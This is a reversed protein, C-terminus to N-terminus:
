RTPRNSDPNGRQLAQKHAIELNTTADIITERMSTADKMQTERLDAAIQMATRHTEAEERHVQRLNEAVEQMHTRETVASEKAQVGFVHAQKEMSLQQVQKQAQALQTQLQVIMQKVKPDIEDPLDKTAQAIPNAAALRDAIDSAGPADSQRVVLDGAMEMLPPFAKAMEMMWAFSQERKTQYGPGTEMVVDYRGVRVDNLVKSIGDESKAENITTTQPQQDEGIIRIVRETDYYVPIWDLILCGLWRISRTLNDYFHFNSLDSQGQREAVMRGSTEGGEAGLAADFQGSIAKMDDSAMLGAQISGAPVEAPPTRQPPPLTNGNDDTVPKYKLSSYNKVNATAWEDERGEDQGEVMLWPAKPTLALLETLQSRWFNLMRQPDKLFRVMGYREIKGDTLAHAGYVPIVPLYKGPLTSKELEEVATVKSWKVTRRMTDRDIVKGDADVAPTIGAADYAGKMRLYDSRFVNQGTTLKLLVDPEQEIRFYEAVVVEEKNAWQAVEDGPGFQGMSVQKAHPYLKKFMSRKMRETIVCWEADSGDPAISMPDLYVQFPNTVAEISIEQDFSKEDVYQTKLRLFGLGMRVQFESATDYAFEANSQVEIHRTLGQIIKAVQEDAGDAVPHVQIRPRQQRMNNVAQRVFADTKNVTLCPRKDIKRQQEIQDPWQDGHSFDLDEKMSSRNGGYADIALKLRERAENPITLKM